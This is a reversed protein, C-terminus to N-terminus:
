SKVGLPIGRQLWEKPVDMAPGAHEACFVPWVEKGPMLGSALRPLVYEDMTWGHDDEGVILVGQGDPDQRLVSYNAPLYDAVVKASKV